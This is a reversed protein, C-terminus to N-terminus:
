PFPPGFAIWAGVTGLAALFSNFRDLVGGQGPLLRSFDKIGARRKIWSGTLDGALAACAVLAGVVLAGPVSFPTLSRIWLAVLLAGVVGGLLGEVTKGPSVAPALARRGLWQGVVQAFGDCAATVVFIWAVLHADIADSAATAALALLAAGVGFAWPRPAAIRRWARAAEWTSLAVIVMVLALPAHDGVACVLIVGHVIAFYVVFKLVRARRVEPPRRVTGLAMLLAGVTFLALTRIGLATFNM